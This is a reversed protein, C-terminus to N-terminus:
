PTPATAASTTPATPRLALRTGLVQGLALAAVYALTVLAFAANVVLPPQFLATAFFGGGTLPTIGAMAVLWLVVAVLLLKAGSWGRRLVVLALAFLILAMGAIAGTLAMEKANAGFRQLGQEFLDLPIFLLVWEMVREPLTRVQWLTRALNQLLMAVATAAAAVVIAAPWGLARPSM